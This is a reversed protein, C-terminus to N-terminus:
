SEDDSSSEDESSSEDHSDVDFVFINQSPLLYPLVHEIIVDSGCSIRCKQRLGAEDLKIKKNQRKKENNLENIEKKWLALELMTTAERLRRYGVEYDALKTRIDDLCERRNFRPQLATSMFMIDERWQKVGIANLRNAISCRILCKFSEESADNFHSREEEALKELVDDWDIEEEPFYEYQVDRVYELIYSPVDARGLTEMMRGWSLDLAPYRTKYSEILYQIIERPANGWLAYLIPLAGWKHFADAEIELLGECLKVEELSQCFSFASVGIEVLGECLEVEELKECYYFACDPIRRVTSPIKIHSLSACKYFAYEGIELLGECLEVEELQTCNSFAYNLIRLVTSPITIRRLSVCEYFARNGIEELGECLEVEVLKKLSSFAGFPIRTVSHDVRVRTVDDPIDDREQGMYLFFEPM